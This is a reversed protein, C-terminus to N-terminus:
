VNNLHEIYKKFSKWCYESDVFNLKYYCEDFTGEAITSTPVVQKCYHEDNNLKKWKNRKEM